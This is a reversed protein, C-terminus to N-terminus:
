KLRNICCTYELTDMDVMSKELKPLQLRWMYILAVAYIIDESSEEILVGWWESFGIAHEGTYQLAALIVIVAYLISPVRKLIYLWYRRSLVLLLVGFLGVVALISDEWWDYPLTLWVTDSVALTDRLYNLEKRLVLFFVIFAGM